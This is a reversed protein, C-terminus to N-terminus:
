CWFTKFIEKRFAPATQRCYIRDAGTYRYRRVGLQDQLLDKINKLEIYM